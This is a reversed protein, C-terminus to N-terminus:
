EDQQEWYKKRVEETTLDVFGRVIWEHALDFWERMSGTNRSENMGNTQLEFVFLQQKNDIRTAEKLNVIMKGKEDPLSFIMQWAVKDPHPLFRNQTQTWVFDVFIKSLNDNSLQGKLIHNIYSLEYEVPKLEGLNFEKFFDELTNKVLLFREILNIYRPYDKDRHRWNFYIRDFQFQILQDDNENIFWVRPLPLSTTKDILIEGKASAIPSAHQICPYDNKFKNWLLGIHPINLKEPTQFRMGCVVENIPPKKFNPFVRKSSFNSIPNEM